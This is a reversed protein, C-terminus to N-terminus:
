PGAPAGRWADRRELLLAGLGVIPVLLWALWGIWPLAAVFSLLLAGVALRAFRSARPRGFRAMLRTGIRLSVFVGSLLLMAAYLALAVLALPIGIVSASLLVVLLPIVLLAILGSLLSAGFRHKIKEAVRTGWTGSPAITAAGLVMLAAFGLLWQWWWGAEAQASFPHHSMRGVVRSGAELQPPNPGWTILDGHILAGPALQLTSTRARVTGGIESAIIADAARLYLDNRVPARVEVSRGALMADHGIRAQPELRVTAGALRVNDIVPAQVVLHRAAAWLDDGVTGNISVDAGAAMVYGTVPEAVVIRRGALALDGDIRTRVDVSRGATILDGHVPATVTVDGNGDAAPVPAAWASGALLPAALLAHLAPTM